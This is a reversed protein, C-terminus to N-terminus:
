GFFDKEFGNKAEKRLESNMNIYPELWAKHNFQVVRHVEKLILGHNLAQKLAKIVYNEKDHFDYILKNCKEIEKREPLFPLDSHISFLDKPYEVDVELFYGKDSNVDYNKIFHEDFKSLKKVWEFGNVPLKQSMPWGYQNNADLYMLYSSSETNKDFNKLYKNNAKAYKHIVQCIGSRIGKEVILSMDIDTLLELKVGAKKLCAQWPASLFHAPDLEYIEICKNRFNEFVDALLITDNKVYLDHYDGQNKFKCETNLSSYFNEKHPLSTEDFGEWSEICEYPYIGKRLLLTFRNIDNCIILIMLIIVFNM